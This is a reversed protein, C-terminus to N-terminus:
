KTRNQQLVTTYTKICSRSM